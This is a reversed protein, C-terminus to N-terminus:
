EKEREGEQFNRRLFILFDRMDGGGRPSARSPCFRHSSARFIFSKAQKTNGRRFVAQRQKSTM